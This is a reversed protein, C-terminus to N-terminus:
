LYARESAHTHHTQCLKKKPTNSSEHFCFLRTTHIPVLIYYKIPKYWTYLYTYNLIM